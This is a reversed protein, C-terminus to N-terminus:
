PKQARIEAAIDAAKARATHMYSENNAIRDLMPLFQALGVLQKSDLGSRLERLAQDVGLRDYKAATELEIRRQASELIREFWEALAQASPNESYNFKVEPKEGEAEWRFTKTGM